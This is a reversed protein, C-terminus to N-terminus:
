GLRILVISGLALVLLFAKRKTFTEKFLIYGAFITIPLYMSHIANVLTFSGRDLSINYAIGGFFSLVGMMCGSLIGPGKLHSHWSAIENRHFFAFLLFLFFSAFGFQLIQFAYLDGSDVGIKQFIKYSVSCIAIVPMLILLNRSFGFSHKGFAFLSLTVFALLIGIFEVMTLKDGFILLGSAVTLIINITNTVPTVVNTDAFHFAQIYLIRVISFFLAWIVAILVLRSRIASIHSWFVVLSLIFPMGVSWFAMVFRNQNRAAPMKM